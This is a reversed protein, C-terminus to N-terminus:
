GGMTTILIVREGTLGRVSLLDLTESYYNFESGSTESRSLGEFCPYCSNMYM